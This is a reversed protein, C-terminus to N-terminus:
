RHKSAGKEFEQKTSQLCGTRQTRKRQWTVKHIEGIPKARQSAESLEHCIQFRASNWRAM